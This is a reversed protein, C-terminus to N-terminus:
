RCTVHNRDIARGLLAGGGAGILTGLTKSDGPAIVNGLVGGAIGGVILGTTGDGRRCYYRDDYGRYIRDGSGLRRERYVRDNRVYERAPDYHRDYRGPERVIVVRDEHRGHDRHHHHDKALASVPSAAITGTVLVAMFVKRVSDAMVREMVRDHNVVFATTCRSHGTRTWRFISSIQADVLPCHCRRHVRRRPLGDRPATM